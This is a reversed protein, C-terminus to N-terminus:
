PGGAHDLRNGAYDVLDFLRGGSGYASLPTRSDEETPKAGFTAGRIRRISSGRSPLQLADRRGGIVHERGTKPERFSVPEFFLPINTSMRVALAVELGDPDEIGLRHADRPLVVAAARDPGLRDGATQPPSAAVGPCALLDGFTRVGKAGLLETMWGLFAEGEYIGRDKLISM